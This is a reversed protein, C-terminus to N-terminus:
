HHVLRTLIEFVLNIHNKIYFGYDDRGFKHWELELLSRYQEDTSCEQVGVYICGNDQSQDQIM